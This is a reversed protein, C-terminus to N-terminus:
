SRALTVVPTPCQANEIVRGSSIPLFVKVQIM